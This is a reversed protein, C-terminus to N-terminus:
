CLGPRCWGGGAVIFFSIESFAIWLPNGKKQILKKINSCLDFLGIFCFYWRSEMINYLYFETTFYLLANALSNGERFIQSILPTPFCCLLLRVRKPAAEKSNEIGGPRESGESFLFYHLPPQARKIPPIQFM